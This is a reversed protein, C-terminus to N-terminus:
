KQVPLEDAIWGIFGSFMIRTDTYGLMHLAMMAVTSDQDDTGIIIIRAKKDAPLKNIDILLSTLPIFVSGEIYGTAKVEDPTRIDIVMPPNDSKTSTLVYSNLMGYFDSPLEMFFQTLDDLKAKNVTPATGAVPAAPVGKEVPLKAETWARFGGDLSLTKTYGLLRLAAMAMAGRGGTYCHVIIPKDLGPLKDLNQLLSRIPINVAGRIYGSEGLESPERVDVVFPTNGAEIAKYLDSQSIRYYDAPIGKLFTSWTENWDVAASAQTAQGAGPATPICAALLIGMLFLISIFFKKGSM